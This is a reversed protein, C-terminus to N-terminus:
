RLPISIEDDARRPKAAAATRLPERFVRAPPRVSSQQVARREVPALGTLAAHGHRSAPEGGGAISLCCHVREAFPLLFAHGPNFPNAM